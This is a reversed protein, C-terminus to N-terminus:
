QVIEVKGTAIEVRVSKEIVESNDLMYTVGLGRHTLARKGTSIEEIVSAQSEFKVGVVRRGQPVLEFASEGITAKGDRDISFLPDSIGRTMWVAYVHYGQISDSLAKEGSLTEFKRGRNLQRGFAHWFFHEDM